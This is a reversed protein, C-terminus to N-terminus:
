APMQIKAVMQAAFRKPVFKLTWVLIQNRLGSVSLAKNKDLDKLSQKVVDKASMTFNNMVLEPGNKAVHFFETKTPGPCTASVKIKTNRLEEKLALSLSMVYAKSAYYQAMYPGATFAAVSAVNLISGENHKKMNPILAYCLHTLADINLANMDLMKQKDLNEFVGHNGFGANNILKNIFIDQPILHVLEFAAEKLSLDFPIVLVDIKFAKLDEKIENLLSARRAVLILNEHKHACAYAYEKGLGSSAGTILTYKKMSSKEPCLKRM